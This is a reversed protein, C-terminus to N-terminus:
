ATIVNYGRKDYEIEENVWDAHKFRLNEPFRRVEVPMVKRKGRRTVGVTEIEPLEVYTTLADKPAPLSGFMRPM